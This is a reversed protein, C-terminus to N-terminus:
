LSLANAAYAPIGKKMWTVACAHGLGVSTGSFVAGFVSKDNEGLHVFEDALALADDGRADAPGFEV